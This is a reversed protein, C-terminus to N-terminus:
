TLPQNVSEDGFKSLDSLLKSKRESQELKWNIKLAIAFAIITIFTDSLGYSFLPLSIDYIPLYTFDVTILNTLFNITIHSISQISLWLTIGLAVYASFQQNLRFAKITILTCKTIILVFLLITIIMGALGFYEHTALFSFSGHFHDLIYGRLGEDWNYVNLSKSGDALTSDGILWIGDLVRSTTHPRSYLVFAILSAAIFFLYKRKAFALMILMFTASIIVSIIDGSVALLLTLLLFLISSIILKNPNNEALLKASFLIVALKMLEAPYIHIFGLNLFRDGNSLYGIVPIFTLLMLFLGALFLKTSGRKLTNIHTKTFVLWGFGLSVGIFLTQRIFLSLGHSHYDNSSVVFYLVILGLVLASIVGAFIPKDINSEQIDM